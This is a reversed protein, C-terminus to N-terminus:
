SRNASPGWSTLADRTIVEQPPVTLTVTHLDVRVICDALPVLLVLGPGAVPLLRGLGFVVGREYKRLV